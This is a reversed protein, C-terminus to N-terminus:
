VKEEENRDSRWGGRRSNKTRGKGKCDPLLREVDAEMEEIQVTLRSVTENLWEGCSYKAAAACLPVLM